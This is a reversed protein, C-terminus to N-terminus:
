IPLDTFRGLGLREWTEETPLGRADWGRLRYYRDLLEDQDARSITHGAGMGDPLPTEAFR